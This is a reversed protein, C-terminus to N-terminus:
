ETETLDVGWIITYPIFILAFYYSFLASVQITHLTFTPSKPRSSYLTPSTSTSTGGSSDRSWTEAEAWRAEM